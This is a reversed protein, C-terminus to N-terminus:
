SKPETKPKAKRKRRKPRRAESLRTHTSNQKSAVAVGLPTPDDGPEFRMAEGVVLLTAGRKAIEGAFWLADKESFGVCYPAAVIVLDDAFVNALLDNRGQLKEAAGRAAKEIKDEWLRGYPSVDVKMAALAAVQKERPPRGPGILAYGWTNPM